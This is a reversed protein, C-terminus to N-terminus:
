PTGGSVQVAILEEGGATVVANITARPEYKNVQLKAFQLDFAGFTPDPTGYPPLLYRTGPRTGLLNAVCQTIEDASGQQLTLAMGFPDVEFPIKLHPVTGIPLAAGTIVGTRPDVEM